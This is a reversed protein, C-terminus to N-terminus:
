VVHGIHKCFNCFEPIKEYEINVFFAFSEREVLISDRLGGHLNIDVLARAYHGFVKKRTSDDITVPTGVCQAHTVMLNSPNFDPSLQQLRLTGPNL